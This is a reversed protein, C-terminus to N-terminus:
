GGRKTKILALVRDAARCESKIYEEQQRPLIFMKGDWPRDLLIMEIESWGLGGRQALRELTQDHNKVAQAAHPELTAWPIEKPYASPLPRSTSHLVPFMRTPAIEEGIEPPPPAAALMAEWGNNELAAEMRVLDDEGPEKPVLQWGDVVSAEAAQPPSTLAKRIRKAWGRMTPAPHVKGTPSLNDAEECLEKAVQELAERMDVSARETKPTDTM